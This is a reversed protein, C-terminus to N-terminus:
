GRSEELEYFYATSIIIDKSQLVPVSTRLRLRLLAVRVRMFSVEMRMRMTVLVCCVGGLPVEAKRQDTQLHRVM